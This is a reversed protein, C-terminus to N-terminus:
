DPPNAIAIIDKVLEAKESKNECSLKAKLDFKTFERRAILEQIRQAGTMVGGLINYWKVYREFRNEFSILYSDNGWFDNKTKDRTYERM